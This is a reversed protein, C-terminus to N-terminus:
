LPLAVGSSIKSKVTSAFQDIHLYAVVEGPYPVLLSMHDQLVSFLGEVGTGWNPEPESGTQYNLQEQSADLEGCQCNPLHLASQCVTYGLM